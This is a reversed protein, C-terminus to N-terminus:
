FERLLRGYGPVRDEIHASRLLQWLTAQTSTIVPKGLEQELRDVVEHSRLNLCTILMADADESWASVALQYIEDPTPDALRFSDGIGLHASGVIEFGASAFFRHEASDIETTYPSAVALRKADFLQLAMSISRTATVGPVQAVRRIEHLLVDDYAVGQVISSATCCYAISAPKCSVLQEVAHLGEERDMRLVAETTLNSGLLMRAAHFTVDPPAVRNFWPEVVTNVSPLVLGLRARVEGDRTKMESVSRENM